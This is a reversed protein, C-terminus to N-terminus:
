TVVDPTGGCQDLSLPDAQFFRQQFELGKGEKFAMAMESTFKEARIYMVRLGPRERRVYHGVAHMLHTKGLGVAGHLFLPNYVGPDQAVALGAAHAFRNSNGVVLTEFTWRPNLGGHRPARPPEKAVAVAPPFAIPVQQPLEAKPVQRTVRVVVTIPHGAVEALAAEILTRHRSTLWNLTFENPAELTLENGNLDRPQLPAVFTGFSAKSLRQVLVDLTQKWLVQGQM